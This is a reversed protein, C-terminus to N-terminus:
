AWEWTGHMQPRRLAGWQAKQQAVREAFSQQELSMRNERERQQRDRVVKEALYKDLHDRLRKRMDIM